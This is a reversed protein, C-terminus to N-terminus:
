FYALETLTVLLQLNLVYENCEAYLVEAAVIDGFNETEDIRVQVPYFIAYMKEIIRTLYKQLMTSHTKHTIEIMLEVAMDSLESASVFCDAMFHLQSNELGFNIALIELVKQWEMDSLKVSGLIQKCEYLCKEMRDKRRALFHFSFHEPTECLTIVRMKIPQCQLSGAFKEICSLLRPIDVFNFGWTLASDITTGNQCFHLARRLYQLAVVFDFERNDSNTFVTNAYLREDKILVSMVQDEKAGPVTKAINVVRTCVPKGTYDKNVTFCRVHYLVNDIRFMIDGHSTVVGHM